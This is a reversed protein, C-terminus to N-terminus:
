QEDDSDDDSDDNQPEEEVERRLNLFAFKEFAKTRKEAAKQAEKQWWVKTLLGIIFAAFNMLMFFASALGLLPWWEQQFRSCSNWQRLHQQFQYSGHLSVQLSLFHCWGKGRGFNSLIQQMAPKNEEATSKCELKEKFSKGM